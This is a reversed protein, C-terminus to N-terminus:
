AFDQQAAAAIWRSPFEVAPIALLDFPIRRGTRGIFCRTGPEVAGFIGTCKENPMQLWQFVDANAAVRRNNRRAVEPPSMFRADM